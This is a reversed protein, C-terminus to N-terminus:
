PAIREDQRLRERALALLAEGGLRDARDVLRLKELAEVAEAFHGLRTLLYGEGKLAWLYFRLMPMSIAGARDIDEITLARWDAPVNLRRGAAAMAEAAMPLTGAYDHRFYRFRYLAVIVTLDDPARGFAEELLAEAEAPGQAQQARELLAAVAEDIPEDFYLDSGEFDLLDREPSQITLFDAM